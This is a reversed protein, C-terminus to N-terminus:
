PVVVGSGYKFAEVTASQTCRDSGRIIIWIVRREGLDVFPRNPHLMFDAM